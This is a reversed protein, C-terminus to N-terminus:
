RWRTRIAYLAGIIRSGISLGFTKILYKVLLARKGSTYDFLYLYKKLRPALQKQSAVDLTSFTIFCTSYHFTLHSIMLRGVADPNSQFGPVWKDLIYLISEISRADATTTVSGPRNLLVVYFDRNIAEVTQAHKFVNLVWDIDEAKIGKVFFLDNSIVFSRRTVTIVASSPFLGSEYLSKVVESVASASNVIPQYSKGFSTLKKSNLNYFKWYFLLLDPSSAELKDAVSQLADQQDWYDDGDLFMLYDGIAAQIGTNRADSAGGNPKHIVRIRADAAALRDCLAASDDTSGDNVLLLEFDTFTQNLVSQVGKELYPAVNYVPIVISFRM